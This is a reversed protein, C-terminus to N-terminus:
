GEPAPADTPAGRLIAGDGTVVDRGTTLGYTEALHADWLRAAEQASALKRGWMEAQETAEAIAAVLRRTFARDGEGIEEPRPAPSSEDAYAGNSAADVAEAGVTRKTTM